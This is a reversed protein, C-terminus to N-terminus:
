LRKSFGQGHRQPIPRDHSTRGDGVRAKNSNRGCLVLRWGQSSANVGQRVVDVVVFVSEVSDTLWEHHAAAPNSDRQERDMGMMHRNQTGQYYKDIPWYLM